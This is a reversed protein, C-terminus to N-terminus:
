LDKLWDMQFWLALFGAVMVGVQILAILLALAMRLHSRPVMSFPGKWYRIAIFACCSRHHFSRALRHADDSVFGSRPRHQGVADTKKRISFRRRQLAISRPVEPVRGRCGLTRVLHRLNARRLPQLIAHGKEAPQLFLSARGAFTGGASPQPAITSPSSHLPAFTSVWNESHCRPCLITVDAGGPPLPSQCSACRAPM